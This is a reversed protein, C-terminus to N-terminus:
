RVIHIPQKDLDRDQSDMLVLDFIYPDQILRKWVTYTAQVFAATLPRKEAILPCTYPLKTTNLILHLIGDETIHPTLPFFRCQLPRSKRPCHPPTVCKIFFVNGRWSQPFDFNEAKEVTWKLWDEKKTYLKEEGPLLYIGMEADQDTYTCCTSGCLIGCDTELPSVRDLLRYIAQYTSKRITSKM